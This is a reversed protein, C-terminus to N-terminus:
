LYFRGRNDIEMGFHWIPYEYIHDVRVTVKRVAKLGKFRFFRLTAFFIACTSIM